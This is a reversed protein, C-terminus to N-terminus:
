CLNLLLRAAPTSLPHPVRLQELHAMGKADARARALMEAAPVSQSQRETRAAFWLEFVNWLQWTM